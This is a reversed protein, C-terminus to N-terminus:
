RLKTWQLLSTSWGSFRRLRPESNKRLFFSLDFDFADVGFCQSPLCRMTDTLDTSNTDIAYNRESLSCYHTRCSHPASTRPAPSLCSLPLATRFAICNHAVFVQVYTLTTAFENAGNPDSPTTSSHRSSLRTNERENEKELLYM